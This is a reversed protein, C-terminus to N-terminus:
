AALTEAVPCSTLCWVPCILPCDKEHSETCAQFYHRVVLLANQIGQDPM